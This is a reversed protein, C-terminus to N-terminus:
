TSTLASMLQPAWRLIGLAKKYYITWSSSVTVNSLCSRNLSQNTLMKNMAVSVQMYILIMRTASTALCTPRLGYSTETYTTETPASASLATTEPATWVWCSLVEIKCHQADLLHNCEITRLTDLSPELQVGLQYWETVDRLEKEIERLLSVPALGQFCHTSM